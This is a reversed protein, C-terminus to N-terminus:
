SWYETTPHIIIKHLTGTKKFLRVYNSSETGSYRYQTSLALDTDDLLMEHLSPRTM